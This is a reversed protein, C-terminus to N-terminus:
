RAGGQRLMRSTMAAAGGGRGCRAGAAQGQEARRQQIFNHCDADAPATAAGILSPSVTVALFRQKHSARVPVV